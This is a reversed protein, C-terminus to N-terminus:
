FLLTKTITKVHFPSVIFHLLLPLLLDGRREAAYDPYIIKLDRRALVKLSWSEEIQQNGM